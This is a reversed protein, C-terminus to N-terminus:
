DIIRIAAVIGLAAKGAGEISGAMSDIEKPIRRRMAALLNVDHGYEHTIVSRIQFVQQFQARRVADPVDDSQERVPPESPSLAHVFERSKRDGFREEIEPFPVGM